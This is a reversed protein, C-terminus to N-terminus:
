ILDMEPPHGLLYAGVTQLNSKRGQLQQAVTHIDRFRREYPGTAFIATAGALDYAVDAVAKAEHIAHTAALRIRMRQDVTLEGSEQVESWVAEAVEVLYARAANLRAEAVATDTQIMGDDKLVLRALRPRKDRTLGKFTDLMTRAIGLATAAFGFAFLSMAPYQYLLRESRREAVDDRAVSFEPRVPLDEVEYADSATARLGVVDWNDTIQAAEAPFLFTRILAEGAENRLTTGERDVLVAHGGLWTAHRIGSAFAWNGNLRYVGAEEDLTATSKAGPGWALVGNGDRPWVQAVVDDELYAATMACGNAQCVCWATSADRKAVAEMVRLFVPPAVELGGADSPLLLRFLGIEHFADLVQPSLRRTREAEEATGEILEALEDVQAVLDHASNEKM